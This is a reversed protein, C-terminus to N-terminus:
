FNHEVSAVGVDPVVAVVPVVVVVTAAAVTVVVVFHAGKTGCHLNGDCAAFQLHQARRWKGRGIQRRDGCVCLGKM